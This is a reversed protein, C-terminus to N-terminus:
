AARRVEDLTPISSSPAPQGAAPAPQSDRPLVGALRGTSWLWYAVAALVLLLLVVWLWGMGRRKERVVRIDAM